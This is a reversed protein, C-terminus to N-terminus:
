DNRKTGVTNCITSHITTFISPFSAPTIRGVEIFKVAIEKSIKLIMEESVGKVSSSTNSKKM